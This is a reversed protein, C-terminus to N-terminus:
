EDVWPGRDARRPSEIMALRSWGHTPDVKESCAVHISAPTITVVGALHDIAELLIHNVPM